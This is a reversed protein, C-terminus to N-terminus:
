KNERCHIVYFYSVGQLVNLTGEKEKLKDCLLNVTNM